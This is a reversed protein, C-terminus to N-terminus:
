GPLDIGAEDLAACIDSFRSRVILRDGGSLVIVTRNDTGREVHIIRNVPIAVPGDTTELELFM